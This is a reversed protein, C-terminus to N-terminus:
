AQVAPAKLDVYVLLNWYPIAFACLIPLLASNHMMYTYAIYDLRNFYILFGIPHMCLLAASKLLSFPKRTIYTIMLNSLVIGVSIIFGLGFNLLSLCPGVLAGELYVIFRLTELQDDSSKVLLAFPLLLAASIYLLMESSYARSFLPAAGVALGFGVVHAILFVPSVSFTKLNIWTQIALLLLPVFMLGIPIMFYAISLFRETGLLIYMFYSQHLKELVNNLARLVGENLRTLRLINHLHDKNKLPGRTEMGLVQIGYDGFVSHIGQLEDFAQSVVGIAATELPDFENTRNYITLVLDHKQSLRSVVNMLDLNPLRGNMMNFKVNLHGKSSFGRFDIVVGGIIAGAHKEISKFDIYAHRMGHYSSLWAEMAVENDVFLFIINRAWYVQERAYSALALAVAISEYAESDVKVALIMSEVSPSRLSPVIGYLTTGSFEKYQPLSSNYDQRYVDVGSKKLEEGIFDYVKGVDKRRLYLERLLNKLSGTDQFTETVYGAMFANESIRMPLSVLDPNTTAQHIFVVTALLLLATVRKAKELLRIVTPPIRGDGYSLSHM